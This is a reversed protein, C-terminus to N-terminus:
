TTEGLLKSIYYVKHKATCWAFIFFGFGWFFAVYPFPCRFLLFPLVFYTSIAMGPLVVYDYLFSLRTRSPFNWLAEQSLLFPSLPCFLSMFVYFYAKGMRDKWARGLASKPTGIIFPLVFLHFLIYVRLLVGAKPIFGEHGGAQELLEVNKPLDKVNQKFPEDLAKRNALDKALKLPRMFYAWFPGNADWGTALLQEVAHSNACFLALKLYFWDTSHGKAVQSAIEGWLHRRDERDDKILGLLLFHYDKANLVLDPRAAESDRVQRPSLHFVGLRNRREVSHRKSVQLLQFLITCHRYSGVLLIYNTLELSARSEENEFALLTSLRASVYRDPTELVSYWPSYRPKCSV